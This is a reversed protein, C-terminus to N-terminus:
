FSIDLGRDVSPQDQYWWSLSQKFQDSPNLFEVKFSNNKKDVVKVNVKEPQGNHPMSVTLEFNEFRPQGQIQLGNHFLKTATLTRSKPSVAKLQDPRHELVLFEFAVSM